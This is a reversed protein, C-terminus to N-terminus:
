AYDVKVLYLGCAPATGGAQTRDKADFLEDIRSPTIRGIGVDFLTGVMIRVQNHLFSRAQVKIHIEDNDARLVDMVDLTRVPSKAQCMSNRFSTFDHTGLFHAAAEQMAEVNLEAPVHWVRKRDTAPPARRNLIRYVYSRSIASFRAHFDSSAEETQLISVPFDRLYHNLANGIAFCTYKDPADFHAVQGLAHVGTDTRGAGTVRMKRGYLTSVAIELVEQVTPGYNLKQWGLFNTGDYEITLKYRM